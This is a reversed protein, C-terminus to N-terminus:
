NFLARQNEGLEKCIYEAESSTDRRKLWILLQQLSRRISHMTNLSDLLDSNHFTQYNSPLKFKIEPSSENSLIGSRPSRASHFTTNVWGHISLVIFIDLPHPFLPPLIQYRDFSVPSPNDKIDVSILILTRDFSTIIATSLYQPRFLLPHSLARNGGWFPNKPDAGFCFFYFVPKQFLYQLYQLFYLLYFQLFFSVSVFSLSPQFATTSTIRGTTATGTLNPHGNTPKRAAKVPDGANITVDM